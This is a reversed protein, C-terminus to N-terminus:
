QESVSIRELVRIFVDREDATVSHFFQENTRRLAAKIEPVLAKGQETLALYAKRRDATCTKKEILGQKLLYQTIRNITVKDVSLRQTLDHQVICGDNAAIELLMRFGRDLGFGAMERSLMQYYARSLQHFEFGPFDGSKIAM